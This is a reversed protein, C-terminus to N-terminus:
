NLLPPNSRSYPSGREDASSRLLQMSFSENAALAFRPVPLAWRAAAPPEEAASALAVASEADCGLCPAPEEPSSAPVEPMADCHSAVPNELAGEPPGLCAAQCISPALLAVFALAMLLPRHM